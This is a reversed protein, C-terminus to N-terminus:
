KTLLMKGTLVQGNLQLRYLYIGSALNQGDFTVQHSGAQMVGNVLVAVERGLLDYVSLRVVSSAPLQYGIVTTPNFPNPYNAISVEADHYEMEVLDREILELGAPLLAALHQRNNGAGQEPIYALYTAASRYNGEMLDVLFLARYALEQEYASRSNELVSEALNITKAYNAAQIADGLLVIRAAQRMGEDSHALWWAEDFEDRALEKRLKRIVPVHQDSSAAVPITKQVQTEPVAKIAPHSLWNGYDVSSSGDADIKDSITGPGWYTYQAEIFSNNQARANYSTNSRITNWGGYTSGGAPGGLEIYSYALAHVGNTSNVMATVNAEEDVTGFTM